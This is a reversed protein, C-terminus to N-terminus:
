TRKRSIYLDDGAVTGSVHLVTYGVPIEIAIRQNTPITWLINAPTAVLASAIGMYAIGTGVHQVWYHGGAVVTIEYDTTDATLDQTQGSDVEPLLFEEAPNIRKGDSDSLFTDRQNSM